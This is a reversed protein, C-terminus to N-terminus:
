DSYDPIESRTEKRPLPRAPVGVLTVHGEPFSRTVVANAGVETHDGLVIGGFLKAGPGIYCHDGLTPVGSPRWGLCTSPHIRCHAGVRCKENVVITGWHAISLGPGFINPTITFGLRIAHVRLRWKAVLQVLNAFPGRYCNVIFETRRLHRQFHVVPFRIRYLLRWEKIGNAALDEALYRKLEKRSHIIPGQLTNM